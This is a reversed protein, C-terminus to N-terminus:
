AVEPGAFETMADVLWRAVYDAYSARPLLHWTDEPTNPTEPTEPTNATHWLILPAPGLQTTHAQGPPFSRPHLDLPCGKELVPRASPGRLELTTRNASVDVVSGPAGALAQHLEATPPRSGPPTVLLWEDPGLWLLTGAPSVPATEGCRAPLRAKLHREIRTAAASGPEVRLSLMVAYPIERVSVARPGTVTARRLTDTLHTLPARLLPTPGGATDTLPLLPSPDPTPVPAPVPTPPKPDAM